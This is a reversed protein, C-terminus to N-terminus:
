TEVKGTAGHEAIFEDLLAQQEDDLRRGDLLDPRRLWTRGLAQKLRWRRVAAHDGSLLVEPVGSGDIEEPRTYQPHDLLGEEFSDQEASDADGLVGPVRRALVDMLVLAPLEGGTLVYDGISLEMDVETALVREDVGEYRGCVLILRPQEALEAALDRDLVRGQPSMCVVPAADDMARRAKRITTRLPEVRMVMGPGGGYPRDDVSGHRDTADDRPNWTEVALRGAEIGRAVVGFGLAHRVMEPFLTIVDFRM